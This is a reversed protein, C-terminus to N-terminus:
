SSPCCAAASSSSSSADASISGPGPSTGAFADTRLSWLIALSVAAPGCSVAISTTSTCFRRIPLWAAWSVSTKVAHALIRIREGQRGGCRRFCSQSFGGEVGKIRRLGQRLWRWRRRRASLGQDGRRCLPHYFLIISDAILRASSVGGGFGGDATSAGSFSSSSVWPVSLSM